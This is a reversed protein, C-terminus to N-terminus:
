PLQIGIRTIVWSRRMMRLTVRTIRASIAEFLSLLMPGIHRCTCAHLMNNWTACRVGFGIEAYREMTPYRCHSIVYKPEGNVNSTCLYPAGPELGLAGKLDVKDDNIVIIASAKYRCSRM